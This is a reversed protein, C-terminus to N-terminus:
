PDIIREAEDMSRTIQALLEADLPLRKLATNLAIEHALVGFTLKAIGDKNRYSKELEAKSAKLDGLRKSYETATLNPAAVALARIAKALSLAEAKGPEVAGIFEIKLVRDLEIKTEGASTRVHLTDAEFKLLRGTIASDDALTVKVERPRPSQPLTFVHCLALVFSRIM